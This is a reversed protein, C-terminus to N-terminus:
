TPVPEGRRAALRVHFPLPALEPSAVKAQRITYTYENNRERSGIRDLVNTFYLTGMIQSAKTAKWGFAAAIQKATQGPRLMLEELIRAENLTTM